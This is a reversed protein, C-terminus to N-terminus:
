RPNMSLSLGGGLTWSKKNTELFGADEPDLDYLACLNRWEEDSYHNRPVLVPDTYMASQAFLGGRLKEKRRVLDENGYALAKLKEAFLPMANSAPPLETVPGLSRTKREPAPPKPPKPKEAGEYGTVLWEPLGWARLQAHLDSAHDFGLKRAIDDESAGELTKRFAILKAVILSAKEQAERSLIM